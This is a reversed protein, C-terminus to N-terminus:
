IAEKEFGDLAENVLRDAEKNQERPIHVFSVKASFRQRIVKIEDLWPKLDPNKMRYLGNIQKVVLESDLKCLVSETTTLTEMKKLAAVIAQYEAQNNTTVGIYSSGEAEVRGNPGYIIYGYAAPGPNGRSGGDTYILYAFTHDVM